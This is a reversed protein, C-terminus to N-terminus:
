RRALRSVVVRGLMVPAGVAGTIVGAPLRAGGFAEAGIMDAAVVILAGVAGSVLLSVRGRHLAAAIPTSLLAVFALPGSTATATYKM